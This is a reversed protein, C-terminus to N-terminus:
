IEYFTSANGEDSQKKTKKKDKEGHHRGTSIVPWSDWGEATDLKWMSTNADEKRGGM